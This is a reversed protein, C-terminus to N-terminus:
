ELTGLRPVLVSLRRAFSTRAFDTARAQAAKSMENWLERDDSLQATRQTMEEISECLFGSRGQEVIEAQGGRGIVVPVAGNAMAEVTAIGFHELLEPRASEQETLGAAHWFVRARGLWERVEDRTANSHAVVRSGQGKVDNLYSLEDETQASGVAALTWGALSSARSFAAAMERQHKSVGSVSFRGLTLIVDEKVQPLPECDVLPALVDCDIKWRKKGWRATFASIALKVDYGRWLAEYQRRYFWRSARHRFSEVNGIAAFPWEELPTSLPFLLLLVGHPAPNFPPLQHTLTILLDCSGALARGWERPENYMALPNRAQSVFYNPQREIFRAAVRERDFIVGAFASLQPVDLWPRHYVIEVHHSDQLLSVINAALVEAGGLSRSAPQIHLCIKM